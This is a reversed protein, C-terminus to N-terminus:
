KLPMDDAIAAALRGGGDVWILWNVTRNAYRAEYRDWGQANVGAFRVAQLAGYSSARKQQIPMLPEALRLFEPTFDAAHLQEFRTAALNREIIAAGEAFPQQRAVRQAIWADAAEVAASDVRPASDGDVGGQRFRLTHAVRDFHVLLDSGAVVYDDASQPLLSMQRELNVKMTLGSASVGVVAVRNFGVQYYGTLAQRQEMPAPAAQAALTPAARGVAVAAICADFALMLMFPALWRQWRAPRRMMLRLRQELLGSSAAMTPFGAAGARSSACDVLAAGYDALRHGAALVRADCDVEIARRLRGLQMWLLPQWPMLVLLVLMAALLRPDGADIHSQEHALVSALRRPATALMAAPLVVRPRLVGVVAPGADPAVLVPFQQVVSERWQRRRRRLQRQGAWLWAGTALSACLWAAALLQPASLAAAARAPAPTAPAAALAHLVRASAASAVSGARDVLPLFSPAAHTRVPAPVTAAIFPLAATLLMALAWIWRGPRRLLRSGQEALLAALTVIAGAALTQLLLPILPASM